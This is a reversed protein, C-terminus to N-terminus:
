TNWSNRIDDKEKMCVKRREDQQDLVVMLEDSKNYDAMLLERTKKM